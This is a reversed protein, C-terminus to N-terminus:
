KIRLTLLITKLIVHSPYFDGSPDLGAKSKAFIKITFIIIDTLDPFARGYIPTNLYYTYHLAQGRMDNRIKIRYFKNTGLTIQEFDTLDVPSVGSSAADNIITKEFVQQDFNKGNITTLRIEIGDTGKGLIANLYGDGSAVNLDWDPPYKFFIGFNDNQYIKWTDVDLSTEELNVGASGNEKANDLIDSNRIGNISQLTFARGIDAILLQDDKVTVIQGSNHLVLLHENITKISLDTMSKAGVDFVIFKSFTHIDQGHFPTSEWYSTMLLQNNVWQPNSLYDNIRCIPKRTQVDYVIIPSIGERNSLDDRYSFALYADDPSWAFQSVNNFEGELNVISSSYVNNIDKLNVDMLFVKSKGGAGTVSYALIMKSHSLSPTYSFRKRPMIEKGDNINVFILEQASNETKHVYTLINNNLWVPGEASEYTYALQGLADKRALDVMKKKSLDLLVIRSRLNNAKNNISFAAFRGDPSFTIKNFAAVRHPNFQRLSSEYILEGSTTLVKIRIEGGQDYLVGLLNEDDSVSIKSMSSVLIGTYRGVSSFPKDHNDFFLFIAAYVLASFGCVIWLYIHLNKFFTNLTRRLKSNHVIVSARYGRRFSRPQFM